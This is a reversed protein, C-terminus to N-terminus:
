IAAADGNLGRAFVPALWPWCPLRARNVACQFIHRRDIEAGDRDAVCRKVPRLERGAIDTRDDQAVHDLGAVFHIRRSLCGNITSNRDINRRHRDIADAARTCLRDPIRRL